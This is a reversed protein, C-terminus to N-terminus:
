GEVLMVAERAGRVARAVPLPSDAQELAERMVAAKGPGLAAAIVLGAGALAPLTLTLRRAPPKPADEVVAVLQGKEELVRHGPFLSCVHGDAGVGLLVVDFRGRSGVVRRILAEYKEAAAELDRAEGRMRHIREGPVGAPGLWLRMAAGYNSDPSEPPVAREDGWFFEVGDRDLGLRALRGYAAEAVSGGTLVLAARRGEAWASRVGAEVRRALADVLADRTGGLLAPQTVVNVEGASPTLIGAM